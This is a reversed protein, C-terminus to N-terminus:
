KLWDRRLDEVLDRGLINGCITGLMLAGIESLDRSSSAIVLETPIVIIAIVCVFLISYFLLRSWKNFRILFTYFLGMFIGRVFEYFLSLWTM